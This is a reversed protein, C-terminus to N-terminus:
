EHMVIICRLITYERLSYCIDTCENICVYAYMYIDIFIHKKKDVLYTATNYKKIIKKIQTSM